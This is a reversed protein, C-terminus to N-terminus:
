PMRYAWERWPEADDGLNRDSLVILERMVHRRTPVDLRDLEDVLLRAIKGKRELHERGIRVLSTAAAQAVLSEEDHLLDGLSEVSDRDRIIGLISAAQVRVFPEEDVLASRCASALDEDRGGVTAVRSLAYAANSRTWPDPDHRLLYILQACPTEPLELVGIGLLAKQVVVPSPDSLAALLPSLVAPDGTFGLAVAAVERNTRVGSELVTVLESQRKMAREALNIELARLTRVDRDSTHNLKLDHWRRLSKDYNTLFYGISDPAVEPPPTYPEAEGAGSSACGTAILFIAILSLLLSPPLRM